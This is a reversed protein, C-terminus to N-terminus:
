LPRKDLCDTIRAASYRCFGEYDEILISYTADAIRSTLTEQELLKEWKLKSKCVSWFQEIPNLEPSYPPLYVCQYGRNEISKAIDSATHIPANDMIIFSGKMKPRKDLIDMTSSIFNYYHMTVTGPSM